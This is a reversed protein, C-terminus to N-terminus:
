FVLPQSPQEECANGFDECVLLEVDLGSMQYFQELLGVISKLGKSRSSRGVSQAFDVAVSLM